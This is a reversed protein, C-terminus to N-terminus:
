RREGSIQVCCSSPANRLVAPLPGIGGRLRSLQIRCHDVAMHRAAAEEQLLHAYPELEGEGTLDLYFSFGAALFLRVQRRAAPKERSGPYEGALLQGPVVWYADPIPPPIPEPISHDFPM